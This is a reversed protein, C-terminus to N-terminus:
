AHDRHGTSCTSKGMLRYGLCTGIAATGLVYIGTCVLAVQGAVPLPLLFVAAIMMTAGLTRAMRDATGVNSMHPGRQATLLSFDGALLFSESFRCAAM